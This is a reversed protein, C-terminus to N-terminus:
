QYNSGAILSQKVQRSICAANWGATFAMRELSPQVTIAQERRSMPDDLGIWAIDINGGM